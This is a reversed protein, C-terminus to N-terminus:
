ACGMGGGSCAQGCKFERRPSRIERGEYIARIADEILGEMEVVRLGMQELVKKPSPGIGSVLIARCDSLTKSLELWRAQGNGPAPAPRREVLDVGHEGRTFIWLSDAEGLHRNVLLGEMSAVAINPRDSGAIVRAEKLCLATEEPDDQGLLGAADARCRTCHHMQTLYHGAIARANKVEDPTPPQLSEFESGEVPFLPMINLLDARRESAEQAIAEVQDTNVGPVLILNVKVLIGKAKLAAIAEFKRERLLAAAAAGRHITKGDRAWAYVKGGIAPDDANITITVHSVQLAAMEDVYPLVNLGNTAVCLLMDPYKERVLRLTEMTEEANAFPDGPGAIGVVSTNPQREVIRDLFDMAEQPTLVASTVGPRTENACDYKRNCFNCKINCKPAVPLHVRGHTHRAKENFCPHNEFAITM